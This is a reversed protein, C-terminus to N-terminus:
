SNEKEMQEISISIKTGPFTYTEVIPKESGDELFMNSFDSEKNSEM